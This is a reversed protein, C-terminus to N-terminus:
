RSFILVESIGGVLESFCSPSVSLLKNQETRHLNEQWGKVTGNQAGEQLLAAAMQSTHNARGWGRGLPLVVRKKKHQIFATRPFLWTDPQSCRGSVSWSRCLWVWEALRSVGCEGACLSWTGWCMSLHATVVSGLQHLLIFGLCASFVSFLASRHITVRQVTWCSNWMSNGWAGAFLDILRLRLASGGGLVWELVVCM